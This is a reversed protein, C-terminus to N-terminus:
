AMLAPMPMPITFAPCSTTYSSISGVSRANHSSTSRLLFLSLLSAVSFNIVCASVTLAFPLTSIFSSAQLFWGTSFLNDCASILPIVSYISASVSSALCFYGCGSSTISPGSMSPIFITPSKNPAPLINKGCTTFLARTIFFDTATKVGNISASFSSRLCACKAAPVVLVSAAPAALINNAVTFPSTCSMPLFMTPTTSPHLPYSIMSRPTITGVSLIKSAACFSFTSIIPSLPKIVGDSSSITCIALSIFRLPM